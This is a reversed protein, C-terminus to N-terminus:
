VSFNEYKSEKRMLGKLLRYPTNVEESDISSNNLYKTLYAGLALSFWYVYNLNDQVFNSVLFSFLITYSILILSNRSKAKILKFLIYAYILLQIFSAIIGGELLFTLIGNETALPLNYNLNNRAISKVYMGYVIDAYNGYGIGLLYNDKFTNYANNIIEERVILTDVYVLSDPDLDQEQGLIYGSVVKIQDPIYNSFQTVLIAVLFVAITTISLFKKRSVPKLIWCVLLIGITVSLLLTKIQLFFIAAALHLVIVVLDIAKKNKFFHWFVIPLVLNYLVNYYQKNMWLYDRLGILRIGSNVSIMGTIIVEVSLVIGVIQIFVFLKKIGSIQLENVLIGMFLYYVIYKMMSTNWGNVFCGILIILISLYILAYFWFYNEVSKRKVIKALHIVFILIIPIYTVSASGINLAQNLIDSLISTLLSIIILYKM